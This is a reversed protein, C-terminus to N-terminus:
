EGMEILRNAVGELDPEVIEPVPALPYLEQGPRAVFAARMGNWLAGAVDWGHAAIMMCADPWKGVRSAAWGYIDRHPKYIGAEEVSLNIHFMGALGANELQREMVKQFSNTLLGIQFEADKLRKLAPLADPHPPASMIPQIAERARDESLDLGNSRAVMMMASIGIEDFPKFQGAVTAVLSYHLLSSFWLPVLENRGEFANKVSERVESLDLLTENLDFFLIRPRGKKKGDTM